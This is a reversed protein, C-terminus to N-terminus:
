LHRLDTDNWRRSLSCIDSRIDRRMDEVKLLPDELQKDIEELLRKMDKFIEFEKLSFSVYM